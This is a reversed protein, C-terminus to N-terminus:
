AFRRLKVGAASLGLFGLLVAAPAPVKVVYDQFNDTKPDSGLFPSTLAAYDGMPTAQRDARIDNLMGNATNAVDTRGVYFNGQGLSVNWIAPDPNETAQSQEDVIEWVATQLAAAHLNNTTTNGTNLYAKTWYKGLLEALYAARLAGMGDSPSSQPDPAQALPVIDYTKTQAPALDWVDICFSQVSGTLYPEWQDPVGAYPPTSLSPVDKLNSLSLNYVGTWFGTGGAYNTNSSWIGVALGPSVATYRADVQGYHLDALAPAAAIVCVITSLIVRKM